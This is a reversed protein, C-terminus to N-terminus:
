LCFIEVWVYVGKLFLRDLRALGANEPTDKVSLSEEPASFHEDWRNTLNVGLDERVKWTLLAAQDELTQKVEVGPVKKELLIMLVSRGWEYILSMDTLGKDKALKRVEGIMEDAYVIKEHTLLKKM